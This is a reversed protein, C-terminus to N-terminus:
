DTQPLVAQLESGQLAGRGFRQPCQFLKLAKLKFGKKEFRSIIEGVMSAVLHPLFIRTKHPNKNKIARSLSNSFLHSPSQFAALYRYNTASVATTPLSLSIGTDTSSSLRM